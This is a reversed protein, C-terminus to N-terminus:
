DFRAWISSNSLPSHMCCWANLLAVAENGQRDSSEFIEHVTWEEAIHTVFSISTRFSAKMPGFMLLSIIM